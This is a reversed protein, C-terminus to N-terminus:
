IEFSYFKRINDMILLNYVFIFRNYFRWNVRIRRLSWYVSVLIKICLLSNICCVFNIFTIVILIHARHRRIFLFLIMGLWRALIVSYLKWFYDLFIFSILRSIYGWCLRSAKDSGFTWMRIFHSSFKQWEGGIDCKYYKIYKCWLSDFKLVDSDINWLAFLGM